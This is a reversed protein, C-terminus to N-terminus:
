PKSFYFHSMEGKMSIQYNQAPNQAAADSYRSAASGRGIVKGINSVDRLLESQAAIERFASSLEPSGSLFADLREKEPHEGVVKLLDNEDLRLTVKNNLDVGMETLSGYVADVFADQLRSINGSVAELVNGDPHDIAQLLGQLRPALVNLSASDTVRSLVDLSSPASKERRQVGGQANDTLAAASTNDMGNINVGYEKAQIIKGNGYTTSDLLNLALRM